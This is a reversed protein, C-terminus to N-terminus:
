ADGNGERMLLYVVTLWYLTKILDLNEVGGEGSENALASFYANKENERM